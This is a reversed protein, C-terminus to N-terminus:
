GSSYTVLTTSSLTAKNAALPANNANSCGPGNLLQYPVYSQVYPTGTITDALVVVTFHRVCSEQATYLLAGNAAIGAVIVTTIGHSQLMSQLSTNYYKDPGTANTIVTEGTQNTLPPPVPLTTFIILVGAARSRNLMASVIPLTANCGAMRSCYSYDLVLLATTKPNVTVAVPAPLTPFSSNSGSQSGTMTITTTATTTSVATVTSAAVTTTTTQTSTTQTAAPASLVYGGAVGILLGVVIGIAAAGTGGIGSRSRRMCPDGM